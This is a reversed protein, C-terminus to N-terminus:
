KTNASCDKWENAYMERSTQQQIELFHNSVKICVWGIHAYLFGKHISYPDLDHCIDEYKHHM